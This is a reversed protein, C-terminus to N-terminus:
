YPRFIGILPTASLINQWVRKAQSYGVVVIDNGVLQPDPAKGRRIAQVDFLAGMRQGNVNRFIAVQNLTAVRTEGKALAIAELLTANGKIEFVGPETVEGQVTVKQSVSSAVAVNVQPDELYREGLRAAIVAALESATKGAAAVTGILPMEINGTANVVLPNNPPTSLEPEAYVSVILTDNAGIRYDQAPQQAGAAPAIMGYAQAGQSLGSDALSGGGCATLGLLPAFIFITRRIISGGESKIRFLLCM